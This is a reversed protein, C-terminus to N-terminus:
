PAGRLAVGVAGMSAADEGLAALVLRPSGGTRGVTNERLKAALPAHIKDFIQGGFTGGICIAELSLLSVATGIGQSLRAIYDETVSKAAFNAAALNWVETAPYTLGYARARGLFAEEGCYAALTGRRGLGDLAGDREIIVGGLDGGRNDVGHLLRGDCYCASALSSDLQLYLWNDLSRLAGFLYEGWAQSTVTSVARVNKLKLHETVARPFDFGEWGPLWPNKGAVGALNLPGPFALGTRTIQEPALVSRRLINRVLEMAILWQAAPSANPPYEQRLALHSAGDEQALIVAAAHPSLELGILM